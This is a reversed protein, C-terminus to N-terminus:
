IEFLLNINKRWDVGAGDLLWSQSIYTLDFFLCNQKTTVHQKVNSRQFIISSLHIM